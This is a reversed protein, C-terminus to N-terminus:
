NLRLRLAAGEALAPPGLAPNGHQLAEVDARPQAPTSRISSSSLHQGNVDVLAPDFGLDLSRTGLRVVDRDINSDQPAGVPVLYNPFQGPQSEKGGFQQRPLHRLVDFLEELVGTQRKKGLLQAVQRGLTGTGIQRVGTLVNSGDIIQQALLKVTVRKENELKA